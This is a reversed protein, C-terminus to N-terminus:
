SDFRLQEQQAAWDHNVFDYHLLKDAYVYEVAIDDLHYHIKDHIVNYLMYNNVCYKKIKNKVVVNTLLDGFGCRYIFLEAEDFTTMNNFEIGIVICGINNYDQISWGSGSRNHSGDHRNMVNYTPIAM